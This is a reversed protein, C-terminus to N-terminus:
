VSSGVYRSERCMYKESCLIVSMQALMVYAKGGHLGYHGVMGFHCVRVDACFSDDGLDDGDEGVSCWRCGAHAHCLRRCINYM